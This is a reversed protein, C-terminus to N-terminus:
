RELFDPTGNGNRDAAGESLDPNGDGDGDLRKLDILVYPNLYAERDGRAYSVWLRLGTADFVVNVVNHGKIPIKNCLGILAEADLTGHGAKLDPFAGRGEDQYVVGPLVNPALEDGPDNDKWIRIREPPPEPTHARIKVARRDALGDGFVFHYRKTRPLAEFRQLAATLSDADYLLTRFWVTFHPARLPYPKEKGPSDGMEALVIGAANMGCHAGAFGAFTPVVHPTGQEPLYVVVAPFNHAGLSLNWDLNRTQYLHGDRTAPGWAAISSCSYPLLLPLCHMQQLTAIPVGAGDALGLLEQEVRDDSYAATAAWASALEEPTLRASATLGEVAAPIFALIEKQLLRGLHWGMAYPTGSVVLVPLAADGCRVEARYGGGGIGPEPTSSATPPSIEMHPQALGAPDAGRAGAATWVLLAWVGAAVLFWPSRATRM